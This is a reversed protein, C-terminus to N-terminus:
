TIGYIAKELRKLEAEDTIKAGDAHTLSFSDVVSDVDTSIKAFRVDLQHEAFVGLIDYLLGIRDPTIIEVVTYMSSSENDFLVQTRKYIQGKLNVRDPSKQLVKISMNKNIIANRVTQAVIEDSIEEPSTFEIYDVAVGRQPTTINASLINCRLSSLTGAIRRLLEPEDATCVTLRKCQYDPLDEVQVLPEGGSAFLALLETDHASISTPLGTENGKLAAAARAYLDALLGANWATFRNGGLANMDAYTLLYLIDLAQVSQVKNVFRLIEEPNSIDRRHSVQSMTLHERIVRAVLERDAPPYGLREMITLAMAAGSESHSRKDKDYAGKGIDHLLIALALLDKRDIENFVASYQEPLTDIQSLAILTHEDVTYHHYTNYQM